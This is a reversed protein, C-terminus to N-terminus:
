EELEEVHTAGLTVLFDRTKDAEYEADAADISIFFRDDTARKFRESNFVPHYFRPLRNLVLMGGFATLASFLVTMEFTIPIFAPISAFPKGSVLHEYDVANMWLQMGLGAIAGTAGALFVLWPLVTMRIGMAQEMGHVPYPTHTDWLSFGADRVERAAAMISSDTEFEALLGWIKKQSDAM